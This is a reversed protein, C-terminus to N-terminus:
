DEANRVENLYAGDAETPGEEDDDDRATAAAVAKAAAKAARRAALAALDGANVQVAFRCPLLSPPQQQSVSALL